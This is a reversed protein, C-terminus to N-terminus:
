AQQWFDVVKDELGNLGKSFPLDYYILWTTSNTDLALLNELACAFSQDLIGQNLFRYVVNLSVFLFIM